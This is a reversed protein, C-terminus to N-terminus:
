SVGGGLFSRLPRGDRHGWLDIMVGCFAGDADNLRLATFRDDAASGCLGSALDFWGHPGTPFAFVGGPAGVWGASYQAVETVVADGSGLTLHAGRTEVTVSEVATMPCATSAEGWIVQPEFGPTAKTFVRLGTTELALTVAGGAGGVPAFGLCGSTLILPGHDTWVGSRESIRDIWARGGTQDSM